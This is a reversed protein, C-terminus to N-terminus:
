SNHLLVVDYQELTEYISPFKVAAERRLVPLVPRLPEAIQSHLKHLSQNNDALQQVFVAIM